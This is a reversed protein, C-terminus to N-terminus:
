SSLVAGSRGRKVQERAIKKLKILLKIAATECMPPDLAKGAVDSGLLLSLALVPPKRYRIWGPKQTQQGEAILNGTELDVLYGQVTASPRLALPIWFNDLQYTDVHGHRIDTIALHLLHNGKPDCSRADFMPLGLADSFHRRLVDPPPAGQWAYDLGDCLASLVNWELKMQVDGLFIKPRKWRRFLWNFLSM